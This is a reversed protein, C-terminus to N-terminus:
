TTIQNLEKNKGRRVLNRIAMAQLRTGNFLMMIDPDNIATGYKSELRDFEEDSLDLLENPVQDINDVAPKIKSVVPFLLPLDGFDVKGDDDALDYAQLGALGLDLIEETNQTGFEEAM